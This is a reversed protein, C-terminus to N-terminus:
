SNIRMLITLVGRAALGTAEGFLRPKIAPATITKQIVQFPELAGLLANVPGTTFLAAEVAGWMDLLATIDTGDVGIDIAIAFTCQQTQEDLWKQGAADLTMRLFPLNEDTPEILSDDSGDWTQWTDVRSALIPDTKLWHVITTWVQSRTTTPFPNTNPPM